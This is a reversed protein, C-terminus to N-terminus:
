NFLVKVNNSFWLNTAKTFTHIKYRTNLNEFRSSRRILTGLSRKLKM